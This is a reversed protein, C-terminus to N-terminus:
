LSSLALVPFTLLVEDEELRKHICASTMEAQSLPFPTAGGQHEAHPHSSSPSGQDRSLLPQEEGNASEAAASESEARSKSLEM